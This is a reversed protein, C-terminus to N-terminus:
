VNNDTRFATSILVALQEVGRVEIWDTSYRWHCPAWFLPSEPRSSPQRALWGEVDDSFIEVDYSDGASGVPGAAETEPSSPTENAGPSTETM